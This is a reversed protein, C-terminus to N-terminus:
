MGPKKTSLMKLKATLSPDTMLPGALRGMMAQQDPNLAKQQSSATYAGIFNNMDTENDIVKKQKLLAALQQTQPDQQQQQSASGPPPTSTRPPTQSVPQVPAPIGTTSGTPAITQESLLEIIKM